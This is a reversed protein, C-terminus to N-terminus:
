RRVAPSTLFRVPANTAGWTALMDAAAALTEKGTPVSKRTEMVSAGPVVAYGIEENVQSRTFRCSGSLRFRVASLPSSSHSVLGSACPIALEMPYAGRGALTASSTRPSIAPDYGPPAAPPPATVNGHGM